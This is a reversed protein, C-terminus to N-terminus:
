SIELAHFQLKQKMRIDNTKNRPWHWIMKLSIFCCLASKCEMIEEQKWITPRSIIVDHDFRLVVHVHIWIFNGQVYSPFVILRIEADNM